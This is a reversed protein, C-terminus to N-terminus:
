VACLKLRTHDAIRGFDADPSLLEAGCDLCTQAIICDVAGRITIGRKRLRRFLAAAAVHTEISPILLPLGLLLDRAQSFGRATRFGQLVETVVIPLVGLDEEDVLARDLRRAHANEAGNFYLAWVATDVVIM